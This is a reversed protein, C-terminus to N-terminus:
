TAGIRTAHATKDRANLFAALIQDLATEIMARHLTVGHAALAARLADHAAEFNRQYTARVGHAHTQLRQGTERDVFETNGRYNFQVEQRTVLQLALVENGAARLKRALSQIETEHEFFDSILVVLGPESLADWVSDLQAASPWTGQAVVNELAVLCRDLHRTGHRAPVGSRGHANLGIWGYQDGQRQAIALICAVVHRACDFRTWGAIHESPQQMSASTDLVVRITVHSERESQRLFLKDSRAYLKWDLQRPDDGPEYARYQNFEMGVGLRRSLHLGHLSGEAVRRALLSLDHTRALLTADLFAGSTM